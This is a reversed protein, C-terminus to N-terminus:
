LLDKYELLPIYEMGYDFFEDNSTMSLIEPLSAYRVASVEEKQMRVDELAIDQCVLWLDSLVNKRKVQTVKELMSPKLSIGLEEKVERLAADLSNEGKIASGGTTAWIGPWREVKESRKQILYEDKSNKIWINVVLHYEGEGLPQGREISRGTLNGDEDLIDWLEM